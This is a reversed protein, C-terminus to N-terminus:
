QQGSRRESLLLTKEAALQLMLPLRSNSMIRITDKRRREQEVVLKNSGLTIKRGSWREDKPASSTCLCILGKSMM